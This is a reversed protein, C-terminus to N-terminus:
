PVVAGRRSKRRGFGVSDSHAARRRGHVWTRCALRAVLEHRTVSDAFMSCGSCAGDPWNELDPLAIFRHRGAFLGLLETRGDPSFACGALLNQTGKTIPM